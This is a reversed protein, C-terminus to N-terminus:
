VYTCVYVCEHTCLICVHVRMCGYVCTCMYVRIRVHACAHVCVYVHVCICTYVRTCVSDGPWQESYIDTNQHSLLSTSQPGPLVLCVQTVM